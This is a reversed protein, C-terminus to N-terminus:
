SGSSEMEANVVEKDQKKETAKHSHSQKAEAEEATIEGSAVRAETRKDELVKSEASNVTLVFGSWAMIGVLSLVGGFAACGVLARKQAEPSIWLGWTIGFSWLGNALHYICSGVGIAYLIPVIANMRMADAASSAANFPAFQAGGLKQATSHWPEFHFWGHMHFVHWAIFLMALMGTIRQLTYRVNGGYRYAASNSQGTRIILVGYLAHYIIPLFIFTWEIIPLVPGLSHIQEVARNFMPVSVSALSNVGLHVCMYAGVPIVGSLSHLRRLLFEHRALFSTSPVDSM